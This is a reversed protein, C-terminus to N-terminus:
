LTPDDQKVCESVTQREGARGAVDDPGLQSTWCGVRAHEVGPHPARAAPEAALATDDIM